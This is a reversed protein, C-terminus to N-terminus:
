DDEMHCAEIQELHKELADPNDFFQASRDLILSMKKHQKTWHNYLEMVAGKKEEYLRWESWGSLVVSGYDPNVEIADGDLLTVDYVPLHTVHDEYCEVVIGRSARGLGLIWVIDDINHKYKM